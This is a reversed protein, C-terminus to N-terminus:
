VNSYLPAKSGIDNTDAAVINNRVFVLKQRHGKAIQELAYTLALLTKGGGWSSYITKVKIDPNQLIHMAMKQQLNRPRVIEQTYPNKMDKYRMKSYTKGNWFLVDKTESGECIIAFENTKCGLVNMKPDSYLLAMEKENPYYKGWGMWPEKGGIKETTVLNIYFKETQAFLYMNYDATWFCINAKEKEQLYIAEAIIRGDMNNPLWPRKKMIKEIKRLDIDQTKYNPILARSVRRAKMKIEEDKNFSTKIEELESIVFHSVYGEEPLTELALLASTDFYDIVM